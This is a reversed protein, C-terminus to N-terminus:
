KKKDASIGGEAVRTFDGAKVVSLQRPDLHRKLADHVQQPTLAAIRPRFESADAGLWALAQLQQWHGHRPL